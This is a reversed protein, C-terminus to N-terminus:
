ASVALGNELDGSSFLVLAVSSTVAALIFGSFGCSISFANFFKLFLQYFFLSSM